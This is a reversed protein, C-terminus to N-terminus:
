RVENAKEYKEIHYKKYMVKRGIKIYPLGNKKYRGNALVQMSTNWRDALEATTLLDSSIKKTKKM